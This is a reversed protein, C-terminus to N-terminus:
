RFLKRKSYKKLNEQAQKVEEQHRKNFYEKMAKSGSGAYNYRYGPVNKPSLSARNTITCIEGFTFKQGNEQYYADIKDITTRLDELTSEFFESSTVHNDDSTVFHIFPRNANMQDITTQAEESVTVGKTLITIYAVQGHALNEYTSAQLAPYFDWTEKGRFASMSTYEFPFLEPIRDLFEPPRMGFGDFNRPIFKIESPVALVNILYVCHHTVLLAPILGEHMEVDVVEEDVNNIVDHRTMNMFYETRHCSASSYIAAGKKEAYQDLAPGIYRKMLIPEIHPVYWTSRLDCRGWTYYGLLGSFFLILLLIFFMKHADADCMTVIFNHFDKYTLLQTNEM